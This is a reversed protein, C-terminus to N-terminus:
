QLSQMLASQVLNPCSRISLQKLRAVMSRIYRSQRPKYVTQQEQDAASM